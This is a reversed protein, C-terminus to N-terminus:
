GVPKVRSRKAPSPPPEPPEEKVRSPVNETPGDCQAEGLPRHRWAGSNFTPKATRDRILNERGRQALRVLKDILEPSLTKTPKKLESSKVDPNTGSVDGDPSGTPTTAAPQSIEIEQFKRNM